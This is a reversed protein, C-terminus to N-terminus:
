LTMVDESKTVTWIGKQDSIHYDIALKILLGNLARYGLKRDHRALTNGCSEYVSVISSRLMEQEEENSISMGCLQELQAVLEIRMEKRKDNGLWKSDDYLAAGPLWQHVLRPFAEDGYENALEQLQHLQRDMRKVRHVAVDNLRLKGERPMRVIPKCQEHHDYWLECFLRNKEDETGCEVINIGRLQENIEQRQRALFRAGPVPVYLNVREGERRRKRGLAQVFSVRDVFYVVLHHLDDDIINCGCDLVATTLTVRHCLSGENVITQWAAGGKDAATLLCVNEEGIRESVREALLEGERISNVFILWREREPTHAIQDVLEQDCCFYSIDLYDYSVPFQYIIMERRYDWSKRGCSVEFREALPRLTKEEAEVLPVLVDEPTATMYIRLATAFARPVLHLLSGAAPNFLADAAFFHAEDVVLVTVKECWEKGEQSCMFPLLRQLTMIRLFGFDELQRVGEVTLLKQRNDGLLRMVEAKQQVSIAVRNSALLMRGGREKIVPMLHNLVFHTKGMGTPAHILVAKEPTWRPIEGLLDDAISTATQPKVQCFAPTYEDSLVSVLRTKM